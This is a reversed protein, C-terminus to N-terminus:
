PAGPAAAHTWAKYFPHTLLHREAIEREIDAMTTM